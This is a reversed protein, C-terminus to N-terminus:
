AKFKLKLRPSPGPYRGLTGVKSAVIADAPCKNFCNWCNRCRDADFVPFPDLAIASHPCEKKCINCRTCLSEDVSKGGMGNKSKAETTVPILRNMVGIALKAPPLTEGNKLRAIDRALEGIFDDFANMQKATPKNESTIGRKVLPPYSEPMQLSYGRVVTFGRRTVWDAMIPQTRGSMLGFTNFLFAPKGTQAPLKELFDMVLRAPGAFYTSSAFGVIGYGSVDPVDRKMDAIDFHTGRVRKALYDCALRTNGSNSYCCILGKM